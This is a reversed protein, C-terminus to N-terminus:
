RFVFFLIVVIGIALVIMAPWLIALQTKAEKAVEPQEDQANAMEEVVAKREEPTQPQQMM